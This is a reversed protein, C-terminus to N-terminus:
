RQWSRRGVPLRMIGARSSRSSMFLASLGALRSEMSCRITVPKDAKVVSASAIVPSVVVGEPLALSRLTVSGGADAYYDTEGEFPTLPKGGALPFIQREMNSSSLSGGRSVM